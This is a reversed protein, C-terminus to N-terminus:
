KAMSWGMDNAEDAQLEDVGEIHSLCFGPRKYDLGRYAKLTLGWRYKDCTDAMAHRKRCSTVLEDRTKESIDRSMILLFARRRLLSSKAAM